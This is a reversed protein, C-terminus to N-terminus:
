NLIQVMGINVISCPQSTSRKSGFAAIALQCDRESVLCLVEKARSTIYSRQSVGDLVLRVKVTSQPNQLNYINAPCNIVLLVPQNVETLLTSSASGNFPVASPNLCTRSVLSDSRRQQQTPQPLSNSSAISNRTCSSDVPKTCISSHHKGKCKFCRSSSRCM